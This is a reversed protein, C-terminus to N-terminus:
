PLERELRALFEMLLVSSNKVFVKFIVNLKHNTVFQMGLYKLEKAWMIPLNNITINAVPADRRKDM